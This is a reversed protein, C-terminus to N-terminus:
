IRCEREQFKCHPSHPRALCQPVREHPAIVARRMKDDSAVVRARARCYTKAVTGLAGCACRWSESVPRACVAGASRKIRRKGRLLQYLFVLGLQSHGNDGRRLKRVRRALLQIQGGLFNHRLVASSNGACLQARCQPAALREGIPKREGFHKLLTRARRPTVINKVPSEPAPLDVTAWTSCVLSSSSLSRCVVRSSPSMTRRCRDLPSPKLRSSLSSFMMRM